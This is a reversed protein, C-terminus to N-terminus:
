VKFGYAKDELSGLDEVPCFGRTGYPMECAVWHHIDLDYAFGFFERACDDWMAFQGCRGAGRYMHEHLLVSSDIM